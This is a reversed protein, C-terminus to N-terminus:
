SRIIFAPTNKHGHNRVLSLGDSVLRHMIEYREEATLSLQFDIDFQLEQEPDDRDLLLIHTRHKQSRGSRDKKRKKKAKQM